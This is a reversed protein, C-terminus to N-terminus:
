NNVSKEAMGLTKLFNKLEDLKSGNALSSITAIHGIM